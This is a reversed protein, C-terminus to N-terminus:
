FILSRHFCEFIRYTRGIVGICAVCLASLDLNRLANNKLLCSKNFPINLFAGAEQISDFKYVSEDMINTNWNPIGDTSGAYLCQGDKNRIEIVYIAPTIKARNM